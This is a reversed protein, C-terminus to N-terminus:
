VYKWVFGHTSKQKGVCCAYIDQKRTGTKRSADAMSGFTEVMNGYKDYQAVCRANYANAGMRKKAAKRIAEVDCKGLHSIRMKEKAEDTIHKGYIWNKVGMKALSMKRKTEESLHHGKSCYGGLEINYGYKRLSTKHKSILEREKQEAEEKTLNSYLEIHRINGWGYKNIARTLMQQSKYGKGNRWRRSVNQSTIGIYKKGNPFIHMYVSYENDM